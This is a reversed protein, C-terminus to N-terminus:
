AVPQRDAARSRGAGGDLIATIEGAVKDAALRLAEDIRVYRQTVGRAAHGLLAAITLESFGLDGAVSAFTHRLTHPTVDALGALACVRDLVRVIGIFHGEGWDAPFFFPSKATQPQALLLEVASLGIV